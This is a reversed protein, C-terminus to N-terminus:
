DEFTMNDGHGGSLLREVGNESAYKAKGYLAQQEIESEPNVSVLRQGLVSPPDIVRAGLMNQYNLRYLLEKFLPARLDYLKGVVLLAIFAGGALWGWKFVDSDQYQIPTIAFVAIIYSFLVCLHVIFKSIMVAIDHHRTKKTMLEEVLRSNRPRKNYLFQGNDADYTVRHWEGTEEIFCWNGYWWSRIQDQKTHDFWVPEGIVLWHCFRYPKLHLFLLLVSGFLAPVFFLYWDIYHNILYMKYCNMAGFSIIRAGLGCVAGFVIRILKPATEDIFDNPTALAFLVGQFLILATVVRLPYTQYAQYSYPVCAVMFGLMEWNDSKDKQVATM